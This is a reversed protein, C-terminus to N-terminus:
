YGLLLDLNYVLALLVFCGGSMFIYLSCLFSTTLKFLCDVNSYKLSRSQSFSQFFFKEPILKFRVERIFMASPVSDTFDILRKLYNSIDQSEIIRQDTKSLFIFEQFIFEMRTYYVVDVDFQSIKM